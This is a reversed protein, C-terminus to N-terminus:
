LMVLSVLSKLIGKGLVTVVEIALLSGGAQNYAMGNTVGVLDQEDIKNKLYKPVGLFEEINSDNVLVKNYKKM